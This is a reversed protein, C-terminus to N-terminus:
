FKRKIQVNGQATVLAMGTFILMIGVGHYAEFSEGLLVTGFFVSFVPLLYMFMGTRGSGLAAVAKNWFFYALISPFLAFYLISSIAPITLSFGGVSSVEFVVLPIHFLVGFGITVTLFLLMPLKTPRWRILVTYYAWFCLGLLVLLDGPNLKWTVLEVLNGQFIIVVAGCIAFIVGTIQRLSLGEKLIFFALLFTAVPMLSNIIGANVVTTYHLASYIFCNFATVGVLGLLALFRWESQLQNQNKRFCPVAFPCIVMFAVVWRWFSMQFPPIGDRMLRALLFNGSWFLPPLAAFLYSLIRKKQAVTFPFVDAM